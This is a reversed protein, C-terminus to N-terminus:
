IREQTRMWEGPAVTVPSSVRYTEAGLLQVKVKRLAPHSTPERTLQQNQAKLIAPNRGLMPGSATIAAPSIVIAPQPASGGGGCGANAAALVASLLVEILPVRCKSVMTQAM